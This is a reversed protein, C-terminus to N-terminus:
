TTISWRGSADKFRVPSTSIKATRSGGHEFVMKTPTTEAEVVKATKEDFPVSKSASPPPAKPTAPIGPQPKDAPTADWPPITTTPSVSPDPVSPATGAPTTTSSTQASVPLAPLGSVVLAAICAGAALASARGKVAQHGQRRTM